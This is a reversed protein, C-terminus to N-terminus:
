WLSVIARLRDHEAETFCLTGGPAWTLVLPRGLKRVCALPEDPCPTDSVEGHGAVIHLTDAQFDVKWNRNGSAFYLAVGTPGTTLDTAIEVSERPTEGEGL